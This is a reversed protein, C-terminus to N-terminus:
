RERESPIQKFSHAPCSFCRRVLQGFLDSDPSDCRCQADAGSWYAPPKWYRCTECKPETPDINCVNCM